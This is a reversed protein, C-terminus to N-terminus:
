MKFPVPPMDDKTKPIFMRKTPRKIFPQPQPESSGDKLIVWRLRKQSNGNMNFTYSYQQSPNVTINNEDDILRMKALIPDDVVTDESVEGLGVVKSHTIGNWSLTVDANTDKAFISITWSENLSGVEKMQRFDSRYYHSGEYKLHYIASYLPSNRYVLLEADFTDKVDSAGDLYGFITGSDKYDDSTLYLRVYWSQFSKYPPTGDRYYDIDEDESPNFNESGQTTNDDNNDTTVIQVVLRNNSISNSNGSATGNTGGQTDEDEANNSIYIERGYVIDILRDKAKEVSSDDISIHQLIEKALDINNFGLTAFLLAIKTKNELLIKDDGVAGNVVALIFLNKGFNGNKLENLWYKKGDIDAERDFLNKYIRDIFEEDSIGEPYLSKTENQDFFSQAIQELTLNSDAVWYNLGDSDPARDFTAVYLRTVSEKTPAIAYVNIVLLFLFLFIRM